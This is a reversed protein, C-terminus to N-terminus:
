QWNINGIKFEPFYTAIDVGNLFVSCLLADSDATFQRPNKLDISQGSLLKKLKSTAYSQHIETPTTYGLVKVIDGKKNNFNWKPSVRITDGDIISEVKFAAMNM